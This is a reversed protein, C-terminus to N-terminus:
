GNGKSRELITSAVHLPRQFRIVSPDRKTIVVGNSLVILSDFNPQVTIKRLRTNSTVVELQRYKRPDEMLQICFFSNNFDYHIRGDTRGDTWEKRRKRTRVKGFVANNKSKYYDREFACTSKNRCETNKLIYSSLYNTQYFKVITFVDTLVYGLDIAQILNLYYIKIRDKKHLDAILKKSGHIVLKNDKMIQKSYNSLEGYNTERM